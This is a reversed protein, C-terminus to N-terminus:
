NVIVEGVVSIENPDEGEHEKVHKNTALEKCKTSMAKSMARCHRSETTRSTQNIQPKLSSEEIEEQRVTSSVVDLGADGLM